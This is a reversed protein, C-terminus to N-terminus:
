ENSILFEWEFDLWLGGIGGHGNDQQTDTQSEEILAGKRGVILVLDGVDEPVFCSVEMTSKIQKCGIVKPVVVEGHVGHHQNEVETQRQCVSPDSVFLISSLYLCLVLCLLVVGFFM